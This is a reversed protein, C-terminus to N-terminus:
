AINLIRLRRSVNARLMEYDDDNAFLDKHEFLLRELDHDSLIEGHITMVGNQDLVNTGFSLNKYDMFGLANRIMIAAADGSTIVVHNGADLIRKEEAIQKMMQREFFRKNELAIRNNNSRNRRKRTKSSSTSAIRKQGHGKQKNMFLDGKRSYGITAGNVKKFKSRKKRAM